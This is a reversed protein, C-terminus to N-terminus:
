SKLALTVLSDFGHRRHRYPTDYFTYVHQVQQDSCAFFEGLIVKGDGACQEKLLVRFSSLRVRPRLQLKTSPYLWRRRWSQSLRSSDCSKYGGVKYKQVKTSSVGGESAARVTDLRSEGETRDHRTLARCSHIISPDMTLPMDQLVNSDGM